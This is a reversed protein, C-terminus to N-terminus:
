FLCFCPPAYYSCRTLAKSFLTLRSSKPRNQRAGLDLDIESLSVKEGVPQTSPPNERVRIDPIRAAQFVRGKQLLKKSVRGCSKQHFHFEAHAPNETQEVRGGRFKRRSIPVFSGPASWSPAQSPVAPREPGAPNAFDGSRACRTRAMLWSRGTRRALPQPYPSALM